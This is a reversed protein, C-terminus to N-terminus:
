VFNAATLTDMDFGASFVAVTVLDDAEITGVNAGLSDDAFYIETGATAASDDGNIIIAKGGSNLHMADGIGEILAAMEAETDGEVMAGNTNAMMVIKNTIDVDTTGNHEIVTNSFTADLFADFNLKDNAQVVTVTDRGNLAGTSAFKYIDNGNGGSFTDAASGGTITDTSTGGTLTVATTMASADVVNAANGLTVTAIGGEQAQAGLTITMAVNGATITEVTGLGSLMADTVTMAATFNLVDTGAGGVLVDTSALHSAVGVNFVDADAAASISETGAGLTYTDVASGGTASLTGTYASVDIVDAGNAANNLTLNNSFGAGVTLTDVNNGGTYTTIGAAAALAGLTVTHAFNSMTLTEVSTTLTFDADIVTSADTLEIDDVGDGGSITDTSVLDATVFQFTDKGAGGTLTDVGAGSAITDDGAGGDITDLGANGSLVDAGAGGTITVVATATTNASAFTVDSAIATVASADFSTIKVNNTNTM